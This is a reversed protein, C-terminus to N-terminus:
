VVNRIQRFYDARKATRLLKGIQFNSIRQTGITVLMWIQRVIDNSSFVCTM